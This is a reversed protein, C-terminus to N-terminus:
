LCVQFLWLVISLFFISVALNWRQYLVPVKTRFCSGSLYSRHGYRRSAWNCLQWEACQKYKPVMNAKNPGNKENPFAPSAPFGHCPIRAPKISLLCSSAAPLFRYLLGTPSFVCCKNICDRHKMSTNLVPDLRTGSVLQGNAGPSAHPARRSYM